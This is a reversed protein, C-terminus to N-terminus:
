NAHQRINEHIKAIVIYMCKYLHFQVLVPVPSPSPSSQSQSQILVPVPSSEYMGSTPGSRWTDNMMLIVVIQDHCILPEDKNDEIIM